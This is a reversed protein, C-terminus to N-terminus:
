ASTRRRALQDRVARARALLHDRHETRVTEPDLRDLHSQIDALEIILERATLTPVDSGVDPQPSTRHPSM